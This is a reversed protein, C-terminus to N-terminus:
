EYEVDEPAKLGASQLQKGLKWDSPAEMQRLHWIKHKVQVPLVLLSHKVQGCPEDLVM